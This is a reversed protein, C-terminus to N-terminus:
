LIQASSKFAEVSLVGYTEKVQCVRTGKDQISKGLQWEINLELWQSTSKPEELAHILPGQEINRSGRTRVGMM